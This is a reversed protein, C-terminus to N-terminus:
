ALQQYGSALALVQDARGKLIVRPVAGVSDFSFQLHDFSGGNIAQCFYDIISPDDSGPLDLILCCAPEKKHEDLLFDYLIANNKALIAPRVSPHIIMAHAQEQTFRWAGDVKEGVLLGSALYNRLTRDSLGTFHVLDSLTYTENM